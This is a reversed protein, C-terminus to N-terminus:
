WKIDLEPLKNIDFCAFVYDDVVDNSLLDRRVKKITAEHEYGCRKAVSISKTNEAQVKIQVRVAKLELFAYRTLANTLETAFGQGTYATELWYGIEYFPILVDSNQNYGSACITKNDEKHIVTLSFTNQELSNWQEISDNIFKETTELGPELAWPQWRQLEPLSNNIAQNLPKADGLKPTRIILRPTEILINKM